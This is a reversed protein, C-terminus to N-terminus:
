AGPVGEDEPRGSLLEDGSWGDFRRVLEEYKEVFWPDSLPPGAERGMLTLELRDSITSVVEGKRLRQWLVHPVSADYILEESAGHRKFFWARVGRALALQYPLPLLETLTESLVFSAILTDRGCPNHSVTRVLELIRGSEPSPDLFRPLFGSM